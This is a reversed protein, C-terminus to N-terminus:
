QTAEQTQLQRTVASTRRNPLALAALAGAFALGASHGFTIEVVPHATHVLSFSKSRGFNEAKRAKRAKRACRAWTAVLAGLREKGAM